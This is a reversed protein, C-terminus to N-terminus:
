LCYTVHNPISFLCSVTVYPAIVTYVYATLANSLNDILDTLGPIMEVMKSIDRLTSDHWKLLALLQQQVEHPMVNDPDFRYAKSKAEFDEAQSIQASDDNNGGMSRFQKLTDKLQDM